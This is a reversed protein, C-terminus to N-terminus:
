GKLCFAIELTLNAEIVVICLFFKVAVGGCSLANDDYNTTTNPMNPFGLRWASSRAVPDMMRGHGSAQRLSGCIVLAFVLFYNM